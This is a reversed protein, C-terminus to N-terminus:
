LGGGLIAECLEMTKVVDELNSWPNKNKKICEIFHHTENFAKGGVADLELPKEYPKGDEYIEFKPAATLELYASFNEAHVELRQIRFGVGYHSMMVGRCGNAFRIVANHRQKDSSDGLYMESYVAVVDGAFWRLLDVHHIADCVLLSKGWDGRMITVPKNYTAACHIPGGREMVMKRIALIEPIYRRNLSVIAKKGSKREAELIRRTDYSTLGPPKEVSTHLGKELCYISIDATYEPQTAVCVVDLDCKDIMDRYDTFAKEINYESKTKELREKDIDCIATLYMEPSNKIMQIHGRAHSGAGIIAANLRDALKLRWIKL